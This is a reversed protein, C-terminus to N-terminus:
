GMPMQPQAQLEKEPLDVILSGLTIATAAISAAGQLANKAVETPDIIGLKRMDVLVDKDSMVDLGYGIKSKVEPLYADASMGANNLLVRFPQELAKLVIDAGLSKTIKPNTKVEQAVNVLTIEGGAVIGSKMASKAAAVADDVRYKKEEIETESAGGVRIVAVKGHLSARRREHFERDFDSKTTKVLADLEGSRGAVDESAGEGDIITTNDATVIVHKAAGLDTIAAETITSGRETSIFNAGTIIAIDELTQQRRDGYSPAKVVVSNFSGKLKNVVLFGLADGTVDDAIIVLDRKGAKNLSELLPILDQSTTLKADTVLIPVNKYVAEMTSPNTAMYPSAYGRGFSYGKTIESELTLGQGAEVAVTGDTGIENMIDAILQGIEADGASITAIQAVRKPKNTIDESYNDLTKIVTEAVSEIQKRLQMPNHGAAILKNAENL